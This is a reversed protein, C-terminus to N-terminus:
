LEHWSGPPIRHQCREELNCFSPQLNYRQLAARLSTETEFTEVTDKTDALKLRYVRNGGVPSCDVNAYSFYAKAHIKCGLYIKLTRQFFFWDGRTPPVTNNEGKPPWWHCFPSGKVFGKSFGEKSLQHQPNEESPREEVEGEEPKQESARTLFGVYGPPMEYKSPTQWFATAASPCNKHVVDVPLAGWSTRYYGIKTTRNEGHGHIQCANWFHKLVAKCQSLNAAPEWSNQAPDYDKWKVLYQIQGGTLRVKLIQEVEFLRNEDESDREDEEFKRKKDSKGM